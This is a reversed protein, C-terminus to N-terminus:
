NLDSVPIGYYYELLKVKFIFDYKSKLFDYNENLINYRTEYNTVIALLSISFITIILFLSIFLKNKENNFTM